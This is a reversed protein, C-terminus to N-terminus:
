AARCIMSSLGSIRSRKFTLLDVYWLLRGRSRKIQKMLPALHIFILWSFPGEGMCPVEVHSLWLIWDILCTQQPQIHLFVERSLAESCSEAVAIERWCRSGLMLTVCTCVNGSRATQSFTRERTTLWTITCTWSGVTAYLNARCYFVWPLM